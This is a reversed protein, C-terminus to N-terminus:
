SASRREVGVDSATGAPEYLPREKLNEPGLAFKKNKSRSAGDDRKVHPETKRPVGQIRCQRRRIYDLCSAHM